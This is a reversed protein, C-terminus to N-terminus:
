ARSRVIEVILDLAAAFTAEEINLPPMLRIVEHGLGAMHLIMGADLADATVQQALAGGDPGGFEIVVILGRGRVDRVTDLNRLGFLRELALDGLRTAAEMLNEQHIVQLTALGAACSVPNGGFTTGHAGPTWRDAIADRAAIASLPLGGGLAKGMIVMDPTIGEHQYAFM